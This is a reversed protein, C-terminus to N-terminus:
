QGLEEWSVKTTRAGTTVFEAVIECLEDFAIRYRGDIPTPTDGVLFEMDAHDSAGARPMAMLFPPMGDNPSHQACGFDHAVGIMLNFGNAGTFQCMFPPDIDRLDQLVSVVTARDSFLHGNRPNNEDQLDQFTTNM